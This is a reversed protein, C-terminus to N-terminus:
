AIFHHVDAQYAKRTNQSTGAQLYHQAQLNLPGLEQKTEELDDTKNRLVLLQSTKTTM